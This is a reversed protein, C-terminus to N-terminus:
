RLQTLTRANLRCRAEMQGVYVIAEVPAGLARVAAQDFEAEFPGPRMRMVSAITPELLTPREGVGRLRVATPGMLFPEPAVQGGPANSEIEVGSKREAFVRVTPARMRATVHTLDFPERRLRAERAARRIRAVPGEFTVDFYNGGSTTPTACGVRSARGALGEKVAAAVAADTLPGVGDADGTGDAGADVPAAYTRRARVELGRRKMRVDIRGAVGNRVRPVFGLLYQSHLEEAIRAFLPTLSEGDKMRFSEGGTNRALTKLEGDRCGSMSEVGIAYVLVGNREARAAVERVSAGTATRAAVCGGTESAPMRLGPLPTNSGDTFILIARRGPENAMAFFARDISEWIPSGSDIMTPREVAKRLRSVDDTMPVCDWTLSGFSVRDGPLLADLFGTAAAAVEPARAALSGSRDVVLALTIPQIDNSFAEIDRVVGNERVEFDDRTLGRVLAGRGDRVTAYVAVLESASKFVVPAQSPQAQAHVLATAAACAVILGTGILASVNPMGAMRTRM